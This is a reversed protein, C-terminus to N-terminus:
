PRVARRGVPRVDYQAPWPGFPTRHFRVRGPGLQLWLPRGNTIVAVGGGSRLLPRAAPDVPQNIRPDVSRPAPQAIRCGRRRAVSTGMPMM